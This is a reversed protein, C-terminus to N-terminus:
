GSFPLDACGDAKVAILLVSINWDTMLGQGGVPLCPKWFHLITM